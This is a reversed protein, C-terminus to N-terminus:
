ASTRFTPWSNVVPPAPSITSGIILSALGPGSNAESSFNRLSLESCNAVDRSINAAHGARLSMGVVIAAISNAEGSSAAFNVGFSSVNRGVTRGGTGTSSAFGLGADDGLGIVWASADTPAVGDFDISTFCTTGAAFGAAEGFTSIRDGNTIVRAPLKIKMLSLVNL